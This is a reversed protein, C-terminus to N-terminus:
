MAAGMAVANRTRHAAATLAVYLMQRVACGQVVNLNIPVAGFIRVMVLTIVIRCPVVKSASVVLPGFLVLVKAESSESFVMNAGNSVGPIKSRGIRCMVRM